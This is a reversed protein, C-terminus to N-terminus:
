ALFEQSTLQESFALEFTFHYPERPQFHSYDPHCLPHNYLVVALGPSAKLSTWAHSDQEWLVGTWVVACFSSQTPLSYLWSFLPQQSFCVARILAASNERSHRRHVVPKFRGRLIGCSLRRLSEPKSQHDLLSGSPQSNARSSLCGLLGWLVLEWVKMGNWKRRSRFQAGKSACFPLSICLPSKSSPGTTALM